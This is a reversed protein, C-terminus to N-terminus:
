KGQDSKKGLYRRVLCILGWLYEAKEKGANKNALPKLLLAKIVNLSTAM